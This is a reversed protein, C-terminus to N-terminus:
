SQDIMQHRAAECGGAGIGIEPNKCPKASSRPVNDHQVPLHDSIRAAHLAPSHARLGPSAGRATGLM